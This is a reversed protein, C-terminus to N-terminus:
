ANASDGNLLRQHLAFIEPSVGDPASTPPGQGSKGKPAYSGERLKNFSKAQCVFDLDARWGRDNDGRCLPSAEVAALAERWGAIGAAKLRVRIKERRADDLLKAVPLGLRVALANWEDFAVKVPLPDGSRRSPGKPGKKDLEGEKDLASLDKNENADTDPVEHKDGVKGSNIEPIDESRGLETAARTNMLRGDDTLHLKGKVILSARIVNWRRVSVKCNGALWRADDPIADGRIYILSLVTMYPGQEETELDLLGDLLDQPNCKFWPLRAM